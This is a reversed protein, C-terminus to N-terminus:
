RCPVGLRDLSGRRLRAQVWGWVAASSLHLFRVLLVTLTVVIASLVVILAPVLLVAVSSLPLVDFLVIASGDM